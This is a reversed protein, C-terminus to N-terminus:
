INVEAKADKACQADEVLHEKYWVRLEISMLDENGTDTLHKCSECLMRTMSDLQQIRRVREDGSSYDLCPMIYTILM